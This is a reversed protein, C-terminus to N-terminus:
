VRKYGFQSFDGEWTLSTLVAPTPHSSKITLKTNKNKNYIPVVAEYDVLVPNGDAPYGDPMPIEFSMNYNDSGFRDLTVEYLGVAGFNM